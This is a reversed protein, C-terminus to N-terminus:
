GSPFSSGGGRLREENITVKLVTSIVLASGTGKILEVRGAGDKHYIIDGLAYVLPFAQLIDDTVSHSSHASHGVQILSLASFLLLFFASRRTAYINRSSRSKREIKISVSVWKIVPKLSNERAM